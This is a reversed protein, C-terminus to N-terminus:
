SVMSMERAVRAFVELCRDLQERTHTAMFSTRILCQGQPVAPPIVANVFIGNDFLAKWMQFTTQEDGMLLAIIASPSDVVEYGLSRFSDRMYSLNEQLRLCHEPEERLVQVAALAAATNAPTMAASFVMARATLKVFEVAERPGALFGGLSALSKSFTGTILDVTGDLGYHAVTGRGEPGVVGIGHADDVLVQADHSRALEVLRPLPVLDGLMSFVGDTVILKAQDAPADRLLRGLDDMDNHRYKRVQAFSLRTGDFISAHNERDCFILDDKGAIVSIAGLNTQFGTSFVCCAEKGLLDALAEELRLHMELTGNLFRSGSCGTGFDRIAKQSAEQVAPHHTLGLYNNSGVMLVRRGEITVETGGFSEAIPHFYPWVGAERIRDARDFQRCKDFVSGV